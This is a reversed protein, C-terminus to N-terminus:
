THAGEALSSLVLPSTCANFSGGDLKCEFTAPQENPSFGISASSTDITAGEAPGSTFSVTPGTTDVIFTRIVPTGVDPGLGPNSPAQLGHVTFTHLGDSLDTSPTFGGACSSFADGDMKCEFTVGSEPSSFGFTPAPDATVTGEAPGAAIETTPHLVCSGGGVAVATAMESSNNSVDTQNATVCQGAPLSPLTISWTGSAVVTSGLSARIDGHSTYTTYAFIADGDDGTGSLTTSTASLGAPAQIGNNAFGNN